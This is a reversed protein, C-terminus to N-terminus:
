GLFNFFEDFLGANGLPYIEHIEDDEALKRAIGAQDKTATQWSLENFIHESANKNIHSSPLPM